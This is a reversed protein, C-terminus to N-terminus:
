WVRTCTHAGAARSHVRNLFFATLLLLSITVAAEKTVKKRQNKFSIKTKKFFYTLCCCAHFGRLCWNESLYRSSVPLGCAMWCVADVHGCWKSAVTCCRGPVVAVVM